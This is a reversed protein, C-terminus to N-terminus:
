FLKKEKLFLKKRDEMWVSKKKETIESAIYIFLWDSDLLYM